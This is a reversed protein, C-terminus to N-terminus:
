SELIPLLDYPAILFLVLQRSTTIILMVRAPHIAHCHACPTDHHSLLCLLLHIKHRLFGHRTAHNDNAVFNKRTPGLISIERM